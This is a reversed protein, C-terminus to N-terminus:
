DFRVPPATACFTAASRTTTASGKPRNSGSILARLESVARAAAALDLSAYQEARMSVSVVPARGM